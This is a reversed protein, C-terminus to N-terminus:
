KKQAKRLLDVVEERLNILYVADEISNDDKILAKFYNEIAEFEELTM